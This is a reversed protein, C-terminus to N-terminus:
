KFTKQTLLSFTFQQNNLLEAPLRDIVSFLSPTTTTNPALTNSTNSTTSTFNTVLQAFQTQTSITGSFSLALYSGFLIFAFGSVTSIRKATDEFDNRFYQVLALAKERARISMNQPVAVVVEKPRIEKQFPSKIKKNKEFDEKKLPKKSISVAKPPQQKSLTLVKLAGTKSRVAKSELTSTKNVRPKKKPTVLDKM